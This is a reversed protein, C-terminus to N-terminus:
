HTKTRNKMGLIVVAFRHDATKRWHEGHHVTGDVLAQAATNCVSANSKQPMRYVQLSKALGTSLRLDRTRVDGLKKAVIRSVGTLNGPTSTRMPANISYRNCINSAEPRMFAVFINSASLLESAIKNAFPNASFATFQRVSSQLPARTTIRREM